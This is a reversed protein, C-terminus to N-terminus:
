TRHVEHVQAVLDFGTLARPLHLRELEALLTRATGLEADSWSSRAEDDWAKGAARELRARLAGGLKIAGGGCARCVIAGTGADFLAAKGEPAARGCRGCSVVNPAHGALALTRVSFALLASEPAGGDVIEFFREIAALLRPEPERDGFAERALELGASALGIRRLDGLLGPFARVVRAQALRGVEGRGLAVEAEIVACPELAAGFRKTSKRASRAILAVKGRAETFLTVIRDADGYPVSRLLVAKTFETSPV